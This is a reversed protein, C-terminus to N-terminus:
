HGTVGTVFFKSGRRFHVGWDLIFGWIIDLITRFYNSGRSIMQIGRIIIQLM